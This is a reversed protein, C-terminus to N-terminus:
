YNYTNTKPRPVCRVCEMRTTANHLAVRQLLAVIRATSKSTCARTTHEDRQETCCEPRRQKIKTAKRSAPRHGSIKRRARGPREGTTEGPSKSKPGKRIMKKREECFLNRLRDATIDRGRSTFQVEAASFLTTKNRNENKEGGGDGDKGCARM